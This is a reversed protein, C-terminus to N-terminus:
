EPVPRANAPVQITWFKKEAFVVKNNPQKRNAFARGELKVVGGNRTIIM